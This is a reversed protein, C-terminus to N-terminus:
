LLEDSGCFRPDESCLACLTHFEKKCPKVKDNGNITQPTVIYKM